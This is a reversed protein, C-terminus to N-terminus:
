QQEQLYDYYDIEDDGGMELTVHETTGPSSPNSSSSSAQREQEKLKRYNHRAEEEFYISLM